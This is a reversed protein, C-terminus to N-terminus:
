RFWCQSVIFATRHCEDLLLTVLLAWSSLGYYTNLMLSKLDSGYKGILENPFINIVIEELTKSKQSVMLRTENDHSNSLRDSPIRSLSCNALHICDNRVTTGVSLWRGIDAVHAMKIAKHQYGALQSQGHCHHMGCYLRGNWQSNKGSFSWNSSFTM